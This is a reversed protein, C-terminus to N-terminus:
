AAVRVEEADRSWAPPVRKRIAVIARIEHDVRREFIIAKSM